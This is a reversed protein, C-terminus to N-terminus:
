PTPMLLSRAHARDPLRSRVDLTGDRGLRPHPGSPEPVIFDASAARERSAPLAPKTNDPLHHAEGRRGVSLKHIVKGYRPSKPNVDITVLKDQEDGVGPVGLTWVYVFDEQGVIKAYWHITAEQSSFNPVHRTTFSITDGEIKGNFVIGAEAAVAAALCLVVLAWSGIGTRNM